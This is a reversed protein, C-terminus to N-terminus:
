APDRRAARLPELRDLADDDAEDRRRRREVAIGLLCGLLLATSAGAVGGFVTDWGEDDVLLAFVGALVSTAALVAATRRYASM